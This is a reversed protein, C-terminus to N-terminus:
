VVFTTFGPRKDHAIVQSEVFIYLSKLLLVNDLMFLLAKLNYYINIENRSGVLQKTNCFSKYIVIYVM